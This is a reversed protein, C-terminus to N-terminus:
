KLRKTLIHLPKILVFYCFKRLIITKEIIRAAKPGHTYYWNTFQVGWNRKLLWNDRFMRLDVVVPHDYDGMAATAIFCAGKKDKNSSIGFVNVQKDLSESFANKDFVANYFQMCMLKFQESIKDEIDLPFKSCSIRMSFETSNGIKMLIEPKIIYATKEHVRGGDQVKTKIDVAPFEFNESDIIFYLNGNRFFFWESLYAWLHLALVEVDPKKQYKLSVTLSNGMWLSLTGNLGDSKTFALTSQNFKDYEFSV